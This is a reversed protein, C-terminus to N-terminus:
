GGGTLIEKLQDAELRGELERHHLQCLWRVELPESYDNHHMEAKPEECVECPQKELKGTKIANRATDRAKFKEPYLERMRHASQLKLKKTTERRSYERNHELQNSLLRSKNEKYYLQTCIKCRYSKGFLRTKDNYFDSLLKDKGCVSCLRKFEVM